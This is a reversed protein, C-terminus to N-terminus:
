PRHPGGPLLRLAERFDDIGEMPDDMFNTSLTEGDEDELTREVEAAQAAEQAAERAAEQPQANLAHLCAPCAPRFTPLRGPLHAPPDLMQNPVHARCPSM